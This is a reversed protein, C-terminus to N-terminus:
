DGRGDGIGGEVAAAELPETEMVEAEMAAWIDEEPLAHLSRYSNGALLIDFQCAPVFSCYTCPRETNRRYPLIGAEGDLIQRALRGIRSRLFLMLLRLQRKDATSGSRGLAGDKNFAVPVLPSSGHDIAGDMLRAVTTEGLVLGTTRLEKLISDGIEGDPLPVESRVLPNRLPFFLMGAAEAESGALERSNALAVALYAPLQLALGYYIDALRLKRTRSKYDIVRLFSRDGARAIDIRDIQGRLEAVRGDGLDIRLPPLGGPKGFPVEVKLPRFAGRRAHEGLAQVARVVIASLQDALHRYRSSSLLIENQLQPVLATAVEQALATAEAPSIKGWDLGAADLRRVFDRLAAHLFVGADVDDVRHIAREQLRLGYAAFHAFPCAAFQELRSISSRLPSGYLEGVLDAPLPRVTNSHGLGALAQRLDEWRRHDGQFWRYVGRWLPSLTGGDRLRRLQGALYGAAAQRTALYDLDREWDNAGPPELSATEEELGPFLDKLRGIVPSPSLARGEEDALPYSVYLYESARTLAVYVLYSEHFLRLRGSPALDLGREALLERERDTFMMDEAPRAPFVGDGVGLILAARVNPQRSRDVSGVLVQDLAPPILGLRLSELGAELIAAFDAASLRETGLADVAQDLLGVVGNWVQAHERATELDGAAEAERQWRELTAPVNLDELLGFLAVAFDAVTLGSPVAETLRRYFRGLAPTARNRAANIAALRHEEAASQAQDEGLTLQRRYRWPQGDIWRRGRIGHALVYNELLDVGTRPVPVLDTKLFRFVPEYAWDSVVVELASRLLEALPHHAVPRKRDIFCPIGYDTFTSVILDHYPEPDRMIIAIERWRLGRDRCLRIIERAAAEVEARRNVAAVLRIAQGAPEGGAAYPRCPRRLYERELHALPPCRAFRPPPAHPGAPPDDLLVTGELPIREEAALELLKEHTERTPHFPHTEGFPRDLERSDFCLAVTVTRATRLLAAIVAYEQRTFGAFGDLWVRAGRTLTSSPLRDALLGLLDAPDTYRGELYDELDRYILSLDHLKGRLATSLVAAQRDLDDPTINYSRLESLTAALRDTFGPKSVLGGFLALQDARRGLLSRLILRKGVESLHPRAAGGVEHSVRWALRRFSLVEARCTGPLDPTSILAQELQFTAQEPVLFILPAGNPSEGLHRRIEELCTHTKGTGARGLIFRLGM